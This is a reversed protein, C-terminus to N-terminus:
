VAVKNLLWNPGDFYKEMGGAPLHWSDWTDKRTVQIPSAPSSNKIKKLTSWHNQVNHLNLSPFVVKVRAKSHMTVRTFVTNELKSYDATGTHEAM